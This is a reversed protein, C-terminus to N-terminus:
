DSLEELDEFDLMGANFRVGRLCKVNGCEKGGLRWAATGMVGVPAIGEEVTGKGLPVVFTGRDGFFRQRKGCAVFGTCGKSGDRVDHGRDFITFGINEAPPSTSSEGVHAPRVGMGRLTLSPYACYLADGTVANMLHTSWYFPIPCLACDYRSQSVSITGKPTLIVARSKYAEAPTVWEYFCEYKTGKFKLIGNVVNFFNDERAMVDLQLPKWEGPNGLLLWLAAAGTIVCNTRRMMQRFGDADDVFMVLLEAYRDSLEEAAQEQWLEDHYFAFVSPIDCAQLIKRRVEPFKTSCIMFSYVHAQPSATRNYM